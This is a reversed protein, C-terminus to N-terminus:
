PTTVGYIGVVGGDLYPKCLMLFKQGYFTTTYAAFDGQKMWQPINLTESIGNASRQLSDYISQGGGDAGWKDLTLFHATLYLKAKAHIDDDDILDENFVAEAESIAEEIDKTRINPLCDGYTFQGRDFLERFDDADIAVYAM